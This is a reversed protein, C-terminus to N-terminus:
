RGNTPYPGSFVVCARLGLFNQQEQTCTQGVACGVGAFRQGQVVVTRGNSGVGVPASARLDPMAFTTTGNGGYANGLLAFLQRYSSVPLIQGSAEFTGIPCYTAATWFVEGLYKTQAGANIPSCLAIAAAVALANLNLKM